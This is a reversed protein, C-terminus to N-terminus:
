LAAGEEDGQEGPGTFVLVVDAVAVLGDLERGQRTQGHALLFTGQRQEGDSVGDATVPGALSANGQEAGKLSTVARVEGVSDQQQGIDLAAESVRINLSNVGSGQQLM